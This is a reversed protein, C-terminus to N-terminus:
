VFHYQEDLSVSFTVFDIPIKSATPSNRIINAIVFQIKMQNELIIQITIQGPTSSM